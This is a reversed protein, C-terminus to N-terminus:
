KITCLSAIGISIRMFDPMLYAPILFSHILLCLIFGTVLFPFGRM